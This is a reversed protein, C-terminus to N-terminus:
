RRARPTALIGIFLGVMFGNAAGNSISEPATKRREAANPELGANTPNPAAKMAMPAALARRVFYRKSSRTKWFVVVARPSVRSGNNSM